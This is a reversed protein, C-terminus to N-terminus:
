LYHYLITYNMNLLQLKDINNRGNSYHVRYRGLIGLSYQGWVTVPCFNM